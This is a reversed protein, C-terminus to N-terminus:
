SHCRKLCSPVSEIHIWHCSSSYHIYHYFFTSPSSYRKKATNSVTMNVFMGYEMPHHYHYFWSSFSSFVVIIFLSFYQFSQGQIHTHTHIIWILESQRSLKIRTTHTHADHEMLRLFTLILRHNFPYYQIINPHFNYVYTYTHKLNNSLFEVISLWIFIHTHTYEDDLFMGYMCLYPWTFVIMMPGNSQCRGWWCWECVYLYVSM